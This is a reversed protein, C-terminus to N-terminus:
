RELQFSTARQLLPIRQPLMLNLRLREVRHKVLNLYQSLNERESQVIENLYADAVADVISRIEKADHGRMSVTLIETSLDNM